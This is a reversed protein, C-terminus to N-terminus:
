SIFDRVMRGFEEASHIADDRLSGLDIDPNSDILAMMENFAKARLTSAECRGLMADRLGLKYNALFDIDPDFPGSYETFTLWPRNEALTFLVIRSAMKRDIGFTRNLDDVIESARPWDLSKRWREYVFPEILLVTTGSDVVAAIDPYELRWATLMQEAKAFTATFSEAM